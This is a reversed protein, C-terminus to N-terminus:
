LELSTSLLRYSQPTPPCFSLRLVLTMWLRFSLQRPIPGSICRTFKMLCDLFKALTQRVTANDMILIDGCRIYNCEIASFVFQAFDWQNNSQERLNFFLPEQSDDSSCICSANYSEKLSSVALISNLVRDGPISWIKKRAQLASDLDDFDLTM